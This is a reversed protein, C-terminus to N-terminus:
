YGRENIHEFWRITHCLLLATRMAQTLGTRKEAYTMLSYALSLDACQLPEGGVANGKM